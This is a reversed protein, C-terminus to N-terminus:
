ILGREAFSVASEGGVIIHDLTRIDLLSLAEKLKQTISRDASSPEPNGSPHNHSFIVAAANLRLSAKAVERPYVAAGDITGHFMERYEILRHQADLFIVAFIENECGGLKTTLYEKVTDTSTFSAGRQMKADVAQRAAALIQDVTAPTYRGQDDCILLSSGFSLSFQTM